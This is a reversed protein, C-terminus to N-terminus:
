DLDGLYLVKAESVQKLQKDNTFFVDCNCDISSALQLADALKIDPYKARIHAAKEAVQESIFCKLFDLQKLCTKYKEVQEINNELFPKILVETDTITSTYFEADEDICVSLFKLVKSHYPEQNGVLYILPNTDIFVKKAM